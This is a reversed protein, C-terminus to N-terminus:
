FFTGSGGFMLNVQRALFTALILLTPELDSRALLETVNNPQHHPVFEM